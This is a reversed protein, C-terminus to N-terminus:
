EKIKQQLLETLGTIGKQRLIPAFESRKSQVLSIGEVVLDYAKWQGSKDLRLKFQMQVDPKGQEKVRANVSVKDKNQFDKIPEFQVDQNNYYNLSSAYTSSIYDKFVALYAGIDAKASSNASSGLILLGSYVHDVHPLLTKEIIRELAKTDSNRTKRLQKIEAFTDNAVQAIFVGPNIPANNAVAGTSTYLMLTILLFLMNCKAQVRLRTM